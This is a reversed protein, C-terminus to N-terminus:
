NATVSTPKAPPVDNVAIQLSEGVINGHGDDVTVDATYTGASAYAHVAEGGSQSATGDGFNITYTLSDGDQDTAFANLTITEGPNNLSAPIGTFSDITPPVNVPPPPPTTDVFLHVTTSYHGEYDYTFFSVKYIESLTIIGMCSDNEDLNGPEDGFLTGETYNVPYPADYGINYRIMVGQFDQNEPIPEGADDYTTPNTWGLELNSGDFGVINANTIDRPPTSDPDDSPWKVENSNGSEGYDNFARVVLYYILGEDLIATHETTTGEVQDL